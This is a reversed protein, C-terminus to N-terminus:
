LRRRGLSTRGPLRNMRQLQGRTIDATEGNPFVVVARIYEMEHAPRVSARTGAAPNTDPAIILLWVGPVPDPEYRDRRRLVKKLWRKLPSTVYRRGARTLAGAVVGILADVVHNEVAQQVYVILDRELDGYAHFEELEVEYREKKLRAVLNDFEDTDVFASNLSLVVKTM